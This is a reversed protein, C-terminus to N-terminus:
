LKKERELRRPFIPSPALPCARWSPPPKSPMYILDLVGFEIRPAISGAAKNKLIQSRKVSLEPNPSKVKACSRVGERRTRKLEGHAGHARLGSTAALSTWRLALRLAPGGWFHRSKIGLVSLSIYTAGFVVVAEESCRIKIMHKLYRLGAMHFNDHSDSNM